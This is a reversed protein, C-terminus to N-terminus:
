YNKSIHAEYHKKAHIALTSTVNYTVCLVKYFSYKTETEFSANQMLTHRRCELRDQSPQARASSNSGSQAHPALSAHMKYKAQM